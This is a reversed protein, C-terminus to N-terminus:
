WRFDELRYGTVAYIQKDALEPTDVPFSQMHTQENEKQKENSLKHSQLCTAM